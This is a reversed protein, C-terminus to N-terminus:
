KYEILRRKGGKLRRLGYVALGQAEPWKSLVCWRAYFGAADRPWRMAAHRRVRWWLRLYAAAAAMLVLGAVLPRDIWLLTVVAAIVLVPVVVAWAIASLASTRHPYARGRRAVGEGLVYGWRMARRWWQRWSHMNADHLTMPADIRRIGFGESRLRFCLDPEEGAILTPDYGGVGRVAAVRMMADGGCSDVDGVPVDWELDCLRNYRSAEPHRERRRGFVVALEPRADLEAAARALWGPEVECDGDVFQVYTPAGGERRMLAELGENRARAATFPITTDLEVVEAGFSRAMAVSGDDSGSDVYVTCRVLEGLSTLCRRLREGENRGIVVIGIDGRVAPVMGDRDAM